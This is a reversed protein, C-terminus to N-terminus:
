GQKNQSIRRFISFNTMLFHATLDTGSLFVAFFRVSLSFVRNSFKFGPYRSHSDVGNVERERQEATKVSTIIYYYLLIAATVVYGEDSTCVSLAYYGM